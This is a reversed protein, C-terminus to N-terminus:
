QYGKAVPMVHVYSINPIQIGTPDQRTMLGGQWDIQLESSRYTGIGAPNDSAASADNGLAGMAGGLAMYRASGMGGDSSLMNFVVSSQAQAAVSFALAGIFLIKKM